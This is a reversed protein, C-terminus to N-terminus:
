NWWITKGNDCTYLYEVSTQPVLITTSGSLVSVFYTVERNQSTKVCNNADMWAMVKYSDYVVFACFILFGVVVAKFIFEPWFDSCIIDKFRMVGIIILIILCALGCVAVYLWLDM